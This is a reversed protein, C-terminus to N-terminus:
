PLRDDVSVAFVWRSGSEASYDDVVLGGSDVDGEGDEREVEPANNPVLGLRLIGFLTTLLFALLFLVAVHNRVM